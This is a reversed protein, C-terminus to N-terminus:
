YYDDYTLTNWDRMKKCDLGALLWSLQKEDLTVISGDSDEVGIFKDQELRKYLLIFGNGHWALVKLKDRHRNCFVFIGEIPKTQLEIQILGVLDDISRRFDVSKKYFWIKPASLMLQM